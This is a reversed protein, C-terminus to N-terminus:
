GGLMVVWAAIIAVALMLVALTALDEMFWRLMAIGGCKMAMTDLRAVIDRLGM